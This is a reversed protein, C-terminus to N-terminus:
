IGYASNYQSQEILTFLCISGKICNEMFVYINFKVYKRNNPM